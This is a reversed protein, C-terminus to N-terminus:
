AEWRMYPLLALGTAQAGVEKDLDVGSAKAARYIEVPSQLGTVKRFAAQDKYTVRETAAWWQQYQTITPEYGLADAAIAWAAAFTVARMVTGFGHASIVKVMPDDKLKGRKM